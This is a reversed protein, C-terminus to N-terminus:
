SPLLLWSRTLEKALPYDKECLVQVESLEVHTENCQGKKESLNNTSNSKLRFVCNEITQNKTYKDNHLGRNLFEQSIRILDTFNGFYM